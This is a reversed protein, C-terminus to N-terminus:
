VNLINDSFIKDESNNVRKNDIKKDKKALNIQIINPNSLIHRTSNVKIEINVPIIELTIINGRVINMDNFLKSFPQSGSLIDVGRMAAKPSKNVNGAIIKAIIITVNNDSISSFFM